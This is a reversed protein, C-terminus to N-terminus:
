LDTVTIELYSWEIRTEDNDEFTLFDNQDKHFYKKKQVERQGSRVGEIDCCALYLGMNEVKKCAKECIPCKSFLYEKHMNFKGM